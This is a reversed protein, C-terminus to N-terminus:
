LKLKLASDFVYAEGEATEITVQKEAYKLQCQGGKDSVVKLCTLKGESWSIDVTFGKRAKLGKVSGSAWASPLAPLVEITNAHSQILMEAVGATGGMNGDLQFPPHACLLNSYTGNGKKMNVGTYDTPKLLEKLMKLSQDGDKLRAWFAIKWARSWGTGGEGRAILSVKAAEALDPTKLVSIQSGPFLAFLHSVHRHKNEPDDVDEKWEQLQGWKGIMPPCIKDRVEIAQKTFDDDINLVKAAAVCNNLLDWAMQHDMSAGKSIGGHEPSYSPCSVLYGNEDEILYDIWFKAAEKMLPYGQNKLYDEDQTFAYHEWAHQCLWAAAGPFCGWPFGWGPATFGYANNMTNVIWGEANFHEKASVKGPEVLSEMYDFLPQHCESLNTVEAPWYLMQQNINMHFDCAWPPNVAENWKGQLTLPLSGPRSGSIMLYRNYQFYLAEFAPDFTGAYYEKQRRDTPIMDRDPGELKLDVRAFLSQYDAVHKEYVASEKVNELKEFIGDLEATYDNGIYDPYQNVYATSASHYVVLHKAKSVMLKGEEMKLVGDSEFKLRVGFKLGNDKLEGNVAYFDGKLSQNNILHPTELRLSYNEPKESNFVYVLVRDPYSAYYKRQYSNNDTSYSVNMTANELNLERHYNSVKGVNEISVLLDGMTQHAGYDGFEPTGSESRHIVGTMERKALQNAENFKNQKLLERIEPLVKHAGERNGYNYQENARPGGAWLSEEAFQIREEKPDGFVMAGMYANGIPLSQTMWNESPHDYWLRLDDKEEKKQSCALLLIVALMYIGGKLRKM